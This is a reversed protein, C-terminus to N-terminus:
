TYISVGLLVPGGLCRRGNRLPVHRIPEAVTSRARALRHTPWADPDMPSSAVARIGFAGFPSLPSRRNQSLGPDDAAHAKPM